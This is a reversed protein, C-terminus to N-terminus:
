SVVEGSLLLGATHSAHPGICLSSSSVSREVARSGISLAHGAGGFPSSLGCGYSSADTRAPGKSLRGSRADRRAARDGSRSAPHPGIEPAAWPRSDTEPVAEARRRVPRTEIVPRERTPAHGVNSPWLRSSRSSLADYRRRTTRFAGAFSPGVHASASIAASAPATSSVRVTSLGAGERRGASGCTIRVSVAVRGVM